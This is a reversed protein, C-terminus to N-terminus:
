FSLSPKSLKVEEDDEYDDYNEEYDEDELSDTDVYKMCTRLLHNYDDSMCEEIFTDIVDSDIGERRMAGSVRGIIAFANGDEGVLRVKVNPFLPESGKDFISM